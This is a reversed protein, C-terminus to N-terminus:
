AVDRRHPRGVTIKEPIQYIGDIPAPDPMGQNIWQNLARAPIFWRRGVKRAPVAGSAILRRVFDRSRGLQEAAETVTLLRLDNM